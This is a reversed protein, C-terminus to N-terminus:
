NVEKPSTFTLQLHLVIGWRSLRVPFIVPESLTIAVPLPVVFCDGWKLTIFLVRARLHICVKLLGTSSTIPTAGLSPLPPDPKLVLQWPKSPLATLLGKAVAKLVASLFSVGIM